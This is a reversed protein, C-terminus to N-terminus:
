GAVGAMLGSRSDKMSRADGVNEGMAASNEKLLVGGVFWNAYGSCDIGGVDM